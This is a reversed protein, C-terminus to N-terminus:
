IPKGSMYNTLPADPDADEALADVLTKVQEALFKIGQQLESIQEAQILMQNMMAESNKLLQILGEKAQQGNLPLEGIGSSRKGEDSADPAHCKIDKNCSFCFPARGRMFAPNQFVCTCYEIM